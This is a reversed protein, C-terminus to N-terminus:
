KLRMNSSCEESMKIKNKYLKIEFNENGKYTYISFKFKPGEIKYYKDFNILLLNLDLLKLMFM